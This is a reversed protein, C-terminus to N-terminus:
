TGGTTSFPGDQEGLLQGLLNQEAQRVSLEHEGDRFPKPREEKVITAEEDIDGSQDVTDDILEVSLGGASRQECAYDNGVLGEAIYEPPVRMEVCDHKLATKIFVTSEEVDRERPKLRITSTNRRRTM